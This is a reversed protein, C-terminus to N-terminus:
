AVIAFKEMQRMARLLADEPMHTYSRNVSKSEHGVFAMAVSESEGAAKLWTTCTHRFSHFSMASHRRTGSRGNGVIKDNRRAEVLGALVMLRYFRNSLTGVKGKMAVVSAQSEPFVYESAIKRERIWDRYWDIFPRALPIDLQLGTKRSEFRWWYDVDIQDRRMAVIDSLRQGTLAGAMIIGRWEGEAVALLAFYQETTFVKKGSGGKRIGMLKIKEAPSEAILGEVWADKLAQKVAKLEINVTQPSLRSALDDRWLSLTGSTLDSLPGEWGKKGLFAKLDQFVDAFRQCTAHSVESRRRAMWRTFFEACSENSVVEGHIMEVLESMLKRATAKSVNRRAAEELKIAMQIAKSKNQLKTSRQVRRGDALSYCAVWYRSKRRKIVSAM